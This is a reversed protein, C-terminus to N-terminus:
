ADGGAHVGQNPKGGTVAQKREAVPSDADEVCRDVQGHGIEGAPGGFESCTFHGLGGGVQGALCLRISRAASASSRAAPTDGRRHWAGSFARGEGGAQHRAGRLCRPGPSRM